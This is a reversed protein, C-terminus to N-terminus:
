VTVDILTINERLIRIKENPLTVINSMGGNVTLSDVQVGQVSNIPTYLRSYILDENILYQNGRAVLADKILDEGNNPFNELRVYEIEINVDVYTPRDFNIIYQQGDEDQVTINQNGRTGIGGAVTNYIATAIELDEGGEVVIWIFQRPTGFADTTETNNEM